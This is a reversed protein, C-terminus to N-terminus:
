IVVSYIDYFSINTDGIKIYGMDEDIKKVSGKISKYVGEGRRERDPVFYTIKATIQEKLRLTEKIQILANSVNEADERSLETKEVTVRERKKVYPSHTRLAAFSSFIKARSSVPMKPHKASFADDKHEPRKKNIIDSYDDM